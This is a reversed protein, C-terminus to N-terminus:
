SLAPVIDTRRFDNGKYLLPADHAKAVAYAMCDGFNLAAASERGKGYRRFATLAEDYMHLSFAVPHIFRSELFEEMFEDAFEPLKSELM